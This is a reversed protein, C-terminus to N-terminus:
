VYLYKGKYVIECNILRLYTLRLSHKSQENVTHIHFCIHDDKFLLQPILTQHCLKGVVYMCNVYMCVCVNAYVCM